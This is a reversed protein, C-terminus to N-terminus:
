QYDGFEVLTIKASENGLAQANPISPTLLLTTLRAEKQTSTETQSFGIPYFNLLIMLTVLLVTITQAVNNKLIEILHKEFKVWSVLALIYFGRRPGSCM